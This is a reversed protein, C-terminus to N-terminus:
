RCYKSFFAKRVLWAILPFTIVAIWTASDGFGSAWGGPRGVMHMTPASLDREWVLWLAGVTILAVLMLWVLASLDTKRKMSRLM